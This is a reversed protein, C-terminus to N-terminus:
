PPTNRPTKGGNDTVSFTLEYDGAAPPVAKGNKIDMEPTPEITIKATLDGDEADNATVGELLDIESGAQVSLDHVGSIVPATNDANNDAADEEDKKCAALTLIMVLALLLAFLKKLKM